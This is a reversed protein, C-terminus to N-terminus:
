TSAQARAPPRRPGEARARRRCSETSTTTLTAAVGAGAGKRLVNRASAARRCSSQDGSSTGTRSAPSAPSPRGHSAVGHYRSPSTRRPGPCATGTSPTSAVARWTAAPNATKWAAPSTWPLTVGGLTSIAPGPRTARAPLENGPSDGRRASSSTAAWTGGSTTSPWSHSSRLSTHASPEHTCAQSPPPIGHASAAPFPTTGQSRATLVSGGDRARRASTGAHSCARTPLAQRAVRLSPGAAESRASRSCPPEAGRRDTVTAGRGSAPPRARPLRYKSRSGM